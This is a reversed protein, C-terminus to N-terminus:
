CGQQFLGGELLHQRINKGYLLIRFYSINDVFFIDYKSMKSRLLNGSFYAMRKNYGFTKIM